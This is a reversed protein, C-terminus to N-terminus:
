GALFYDESSVQEGRGSLYGIVTLVGFFGAIALYDWASLSFSEIGM